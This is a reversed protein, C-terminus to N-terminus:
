NTPAPSPAHSHCPTSQALFSPSQLPIAHANYQKSYQDGHNDDDKERIMNEGEEVLDFSRAEQRLALHMLRLTKLSAPKTSVPLELWLLVMDNPEEWYMFPRYVQDRYLENTNMYTFHDWREGRARHDQSPGMWSYRDDDEDWHTCEHLFPLNPPEYLARARNRPPGSHDCIGLLPNCDFYGRLNSILFNV